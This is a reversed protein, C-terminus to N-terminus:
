IRDLTEQEVYEKFNIKDVVTLEFGSEKVKKRMYNVSLQNSARSNKIGTDWIVWVKKPM